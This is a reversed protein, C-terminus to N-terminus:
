RANINIDVPPFKSRTPRLLHKRIDLHSLILLLAHALSIVRQWHLVLQKNVHESLCVRVTTHSDLGLYALNYGGSLCTFGLSIQFPGALHYVCTM